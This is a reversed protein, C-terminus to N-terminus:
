KKNNEHKLDKIKAEQEEDYYYIDSANNEEVKLEANIQEKCRECFRGTKIPGGCLDCAININDKELAEIRGERLYRLIQLQPINLTKAVQDIKVGPNQRIYERVKRFEVEDKLKCEKCLPYGTIYLFIKGCRKCNRQEM